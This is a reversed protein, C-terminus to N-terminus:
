HSEWPLVTGKQLAELIKFMKMPDDLEHNVCVRTLTIAVRKCKNIRNISSHGKQSPSRLSIFYYWQFFIATITTTAKFRRRRSQIRPSEKAAYLAFGIPGHVNFGLTTTNLTKKSHHSQQQPPPTHLSLAYPHPTTTTLLQHIPFTFFLPHCYFCFATTSLTHVTFCVKQVKTTTEGEREGKFEGRQSQPVPTPQKGRWPSIRCGPRQRM